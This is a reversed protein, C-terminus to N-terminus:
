YASRRRARKKRRAPVAVSRYKEIFRPPVAEVTSVVAAKERQQGGDRGGKKADRPKKEKKASKDATKETKEDAM